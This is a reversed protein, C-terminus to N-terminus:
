SESGGFNHGRLKDLLAALFDVDPQTSAAPTYGEAIRQLESQALLVARELSERTQPDKENELLAEYHTLKAQWHGADTQDSAQEVRPRVPQGAFPSELPSEVPTREDAYLELSPVEAAPLGAYPERQPLGSAQEPQPQQSPQLTVFSGPRTAMLGALKRATREIRARAPAPLEHDPNWGEAAALARRAITLYPKDSVNASHAPKWNPDRVPQAVNDSAHRGPVQAYHPDFVEPGVIDPGVSGGASGGEAPVAARGVAHPTYGRYRDVWERAKRYAWQEVPENHGAPYGHPPRPEEPENDGAEGAHGGGSRPPDNDRGGGGGAAAAPAENQSESWWDAWAHSEDAQADESRSHQGTEARIIHFPEGDPSPCTIETSTATPDIPSSLDVEYALLAFAPDISRLLSAETNMERM